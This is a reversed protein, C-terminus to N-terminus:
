CSEQRNTRKHVAKMLGLWSCPKCVKVWLNRRCVGDVSIEDRFARAKHQRQHPKDLFNILQNCITNAKNLLCAYLQLLYTSHMVSVAGGFSFSYNFRGCSDALLFSSACVFSLGNNLVHWSRDANLAFTLCSFQIPM